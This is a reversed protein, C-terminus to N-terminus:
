LTVTYLFVARLSQSAMLYRLRVDLDPDNLLPALKAPVGMDVCLQATQVGEPGPTCFTSTIHVAALKRLRSKRTAPVMRVLRALHEGLAIVKSFYVSSRQFFTDEFRGDTQIQSCHEVYALMAPHKLTGEGGDAFVDRIFPLVVRHLEPTWHRVAREFRVDAATAVGVSELVLEVGPRRRHPEAGASLALAWEEGCFLRLASHCFSSVAGHKLRRCSFFARVLARLSQVLHRLVRCGLSEVADGAVFGQGLGRGKLSGAASSYFRLGLTIVVDILGRDLIYEFIDSADATQAVSDVLGDLTRFYLATDVTGNGWCRDGVDEGLFQQSVGFSQMALFQLPVEVNNVLKSSANTTNMYRKAISPIDAYDENSMEFLPLQLLDSPLPRGAPDIQLCTAIIDLLTYEKKTAGDKAMPPMDFFKCADEVMFYKGAHKPLRQAIQDLESDSLPFGADFLLAQKLESFSLLGDSDADAVELMARCPDSGDSKNGRLAYFYARM